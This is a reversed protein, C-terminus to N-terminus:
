LVITFCVFFNEEIAKEDIGRTALGLDILVPLADERLLFKFQYPRKFAIVLLKELDLVGGALVIILVSV